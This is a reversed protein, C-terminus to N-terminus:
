KAARLAIMIAERSRSCERCDVNPSDFSGSFYVFCLEIPSARNSDVCQITNRRGDSGAGSVLLKGNNEPNGRM